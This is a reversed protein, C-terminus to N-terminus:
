PRPTTAASDWRHVRQVRRCGAQRRLILGFALCRAQGFPQHRWVQHAISAQFEACGLSRPHQATFGGQPTFQDSILHEVVAEPRGCGRQCLTEPGARALAIQVAQVPAQPHDLVAPAQLPQGVQRLAAAHGSAQCRARGIRHDQEGVQHHGHAAKGMGPPQPGAQGAQGRRLLAQDLQGVDGCCVARHHPLELERQCGQQVTVGVPGSGQISLQPSALCGGM